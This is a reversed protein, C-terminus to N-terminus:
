AKKWPLSRQITAAGSLRATRRTRRCFLLASHSQTEGILVNVASEISVSTVAIQTNVLHILCSANVSPDSVSAATITASGAKKCTVVGDAVTAVTEDDSIWTLRRDYTYNPM